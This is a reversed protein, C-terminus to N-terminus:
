RSSRSHARARTRTRTKAARTFTRSKTKRAAKRAAERKEAAKRFSENAKRVQADHWSTDPKRPSPMRQGPRLSAYEGLRGLEDRLKLLGRAPGSNQQGAM